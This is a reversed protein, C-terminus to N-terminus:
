RSQKFIYSHMVLHSISICLPENCNAVVRLSLFLLFRFFTQFVCCTLHLHSPFIPRSGCLAWKRDGGGYELAASSGSACYASGASIFFTSIHGGNLSVRMNSPHYEVWFLTMTSLILSIGSSAPQHFHAPGTPHFSTKRHAAM